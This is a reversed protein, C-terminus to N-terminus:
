IELEIEVREQKKQAGTLGGKKTITNYIFSDGSASFQNKNSTTKVNGYIKIESTLHNYFASDGYVITNDQNKQKFVVSQTFLLNSVEGNIMFADLKNSTIKYDKNELMVSKTFKAFDEKSYIYFEGSTFNGNLNLLLLGKGKLDLNKFFTINNAFILSQNLKSNVKSVYEGKVDGIVSFSNSTISVSKSTITFEDELITGSKDFRSAKGYFNAIQYPNQETFEINSNMNKVSNAELNILKGGRLVKLKFSGDTFHMEEKINYFTTEIASQIKKLNHLTFIIKEFFFAIFFLIAFCFFVLLTFVKKKYRAIKNKIKKSM